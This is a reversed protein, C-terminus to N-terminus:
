NFLDQQMVEAIKADIADQTPEINRFELAAKAWENIDSYRISDIYWSKDGDEYEIAPGDERHRNGHLYWSKFGDPREVAPGDTRHYQGQKDFWKKTGDKNTYMQSDQTSECYIKFIDKIYASM